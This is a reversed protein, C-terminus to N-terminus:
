FKFDNDLGMIIRNQMLEIKREMIKDYSKQKPSSIENQM